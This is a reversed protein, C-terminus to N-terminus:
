EAAAPVITLINLGLDQGIPAFTGTAGEDDSAELTYSVTGTPYDEPVVFGGAWFWDVNPADPGPHPLFNLQAQEGTELHATVTIGREEIQEQTLREGSEADYVYARWVVQEGPHYVTAAVCVAGQAGIAGRVTDAQIFYGPAALATSLALALLAPLVHRITPRM